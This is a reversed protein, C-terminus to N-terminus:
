GHGGERIAVHDAGDGSHGGIRVDQNVVSTLCRLVVQHGVVLIDRALLQHASQAIQLLAVCLVSTRIGDEEDPVIPLQCPAHHGAAPRRGKPTENM